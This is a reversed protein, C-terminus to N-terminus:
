KVPLVRMGLSKGAAHDLVQIRAERPRFGEPLPLSGRVVEHGAVSLTLSQPTVTAQTGRESEGTVLFQLIGPMPRAGPRDRTLVLDYSLLGGKATFRGARVEVTGGRPDPPLSKVVSALDDRLRECAARNTALEDALAKREALAGQLRATAAGLEGKLGQREADAQEFASRLTASASASLRPALYREQVLVVGAAGLAIGGLLLVMWRPLRWRKRRRGYSEFVISNSRGFM